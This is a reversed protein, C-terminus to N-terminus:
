KGGQGGGGTPFGADTGGFTGGAGTSVMGGAGFTGAFGRSGGTGGFTGGTGGRSGGTGTSSPMCFPIPTTEPPLPPLVESPCVLDHLIRGRRAFENFHRTVCAQFDNVDAGTLFGSIFSEQFPDRPNVQFERGGTESNTHCGNCTNRAFKHRTEGTAGPVSWTFFDSADLAGGQFPANEFSLPVTHKEALIAQENAAVFRGLRDSRNLSRDPTLAVPAPVLMGTTADLHFERFEWAFSLAFFDNTRIQGLASGNVRGTGGAGRATFRETVAQLAANFGETGMTQAKLDHWANALAVVDADSTAPINYEVILTAQLRSGFPAFGFVFRGEGATTATHTVPDADNLDIRNVIALLRFASRSLDLGNPGRMSALVQQVGARPPLTFGNVTQTSLFSNLMAEVMAPAQQPTPAMDEMLKGFSWAGGPGTRIPDDVVSVDRITLEKRSRVTCPTSNDLVSFNVAESFYEFSSQSALQANVGIQITGFQEFEELATVAFPFHGTTGSGVFLGYGFNPEVSLNPDFSFPFANFSFSADECSNNTIAIDYNVPTGPGVAAPDAPTVSMLSPRPLCTLKTIEAANAPLTDFVVNDIIGDIRRLNADNGM